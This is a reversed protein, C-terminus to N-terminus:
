STKQKSSRCQKRVQYWVIRDILKGLCDSFTEIIAGIVFFIFGFIIVPIATMFRGARSARSPQEKKKEKELDNM